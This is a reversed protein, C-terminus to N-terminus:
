PEDPPRLSIPCFAERYKALLESFVEPQPNLVMQYTLLLEPEDSSIEPREMNRVICARLM